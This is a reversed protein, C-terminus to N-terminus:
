AQIEKLRTVLPYAKYFHFRKWHAPHEFNEANLGNSEAWAHATSGLAIVYKPKLVDIWTTPNVFKGLRNMVNIWYLGQEAINEEDMVNALWPSCGTRAIFPLGLEVFQGAPRPNPREGLILVGGERFDGVGPGINRPPRNTLANERVTQPHDYTYDWWTVHLHTHITDFLAYQKSLDNEWNGHHFMEDNLRRKFEDRVVLWPPLAIIVTARKGLLYRELMRRGAKGLADHHRYIPGYVQEGLHLRDWVVDNTVRSAVELITQQLPDEDYLGHHQYLFDDFIVKALSTKGACDPGEIIIM